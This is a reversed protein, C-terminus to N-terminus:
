PRSWRESEWWWDQDIAALRDRTGQGARGIGILGDDYLLQLAVMAIEPDLDLGEAIEATTAQDMENVLALAADKVATMTATDLFRTKRADEIAAMVAESIRKTGPVTMM